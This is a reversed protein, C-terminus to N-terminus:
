DNDALTWFGNPASVTGTGVTQEPKYWKVHGDCFLYNWGDFHMPSLGSPTATATGEQAAATRTIYYNGVLNNSKPNEILLLTTAPTGIESIKRGPWIKDNNGGNTITPGVVGTSNPEGPNPPTYTQRFQGSAIAGASLTITDAPCLLILPPKNFNAVVNIKFGLYPAVGAGWYMSAPQPTPLAAVAVNGWIPHREDYDQTYQAIALGLQKLNSSCSARKANERARGFVPFLIAALLAIIAIVILLEILTFASHRKHKSM